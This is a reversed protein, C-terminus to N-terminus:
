SSSSTAFIFSVMTGPMGKPLGRHPGLSSSAIGSDWFANGTVIQLSHGMQDFVTKMCKLAHGGGEEAGLESNGKLAWDISDKQTTIVGNTTRQIAPLFTQGLDVMSVVLENRKPFYQGCIFFPDNTGAHRFVNYYLEYLNNEVLGKLEEPLDKIQQQTMLESCVYESFEKEEAPGFSANRIFTKPLDGQSFDPTSFGNRILISFRDALSSEDMVIEIGNEKKLKYIFASWLAALNADLWELEKCCTYIRCNKYQSVNSYWELLSRVGQSNTSLVGSLPITIINTQTTTIM